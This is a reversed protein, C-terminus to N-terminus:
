NDPCKVQGIHCCVAQPCLPGSLQPQVTYPNSISDFFKSYYMCYMYLLLLLEVYMESMTILVLM